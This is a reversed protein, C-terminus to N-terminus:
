LGVTVGTLLTWYSPTGASTRSEPDLGGFRTLLFPDLATAYLRLSRVQLLNGVRASAVTYGVTISRVRIFSGDEYGRVGGNRPNEQDANPRPDTNSPNTPTWYNVKINNYRGALTSNDTQFDNHVMFGVRALAMASVDIGKWAFRSTLSGAWDPFSSGLIVRDKDDLKGDNNIDVVRIEGPNRKYKKALLSDPLQWIGGFKQDYYVQVPYGIFWRNGVDDQKGGYLSVIRNRNMSWNVQTSWDLGHWNRLLDTSLAVEVGTNRTAGINQIISTYGTSPALNRQMLLEHTYAQYVDISGSVRGSILGFELGVDLQSTREWQLNPNPLAGPRFGVAPRDGFTYITRTLSGETQYPSIATNGTQGYSVRLKLDSFVNTRRILGEDSLRWAFAVSPFLAYKKGPALRSSGDLRSTATLLYRDKFAYNVRAMVSQLRWETLNSSVGDFNAASGLDFYLQEEYPLGTASSLQDETQEGQLSHVLTADIRHDASLSRRYTLINDLTFAFTRTQQLAARASSGQMAQTEAGWFQGRRSFTLDAGFNLRWNLAESLYYDAFLTSFVRTRQRDDRQNRIDSLPNVRQGDPTPKFILHGMTDYAMGLPNDQLAESYVGDGRGLDQDTRIVSTSTGIRLRPSAQHDFNLRLSRRRFDQGLVISQQNLQSASLAFRNNDDGGTVRVENNIQSGDRLILDQWDTSRGAQLAALTGDRGFLKEDASDCVAVGADCKYQGRARNAERKYEAFEPGNMVRMRRVPGQVAGYTDYTILTKGSKGQRTTILVVGNAGRSGYIATASADKLVEVSEIDNPNLDGIGGAMPIGDLVYLPENSATLSREGRVRIRIGDGPKNGTTVIDVGAVRGKIAEVANVKPVAAVATGAVSAVSGTVDKRSQTGYGVVVVNELTVAIPKLPFDATTTQGATVVVDAVEGLGYGILRARVHYTGPPVSAITYRGDSGASAAFQTGMITVHTAPLPSGSGEATVLGAITGTPPAPASGGQARGTQVSLVALLPVVAPLRALLAAPIAPPSVASPWPFTAHRRRKWM